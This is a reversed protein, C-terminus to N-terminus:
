SFVTDSILEVHLMLCVFASAIRNAKGNAKPAPVSGPGSSFVGPNLESGTFAGVGAPVFPSEGQANAAFQSPVTNYMAHAVAFSTTAKSVRLALTELRTGTGPEGEPSAREFSPDFNYTVQAAADLQTQM